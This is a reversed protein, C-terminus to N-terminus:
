NNILYSFTCVVLGMNKLFYKDQLYESSIDNFPRIIDPANFAEVYGPIDTANVGAESMTTLLRQQLRSVVRQAVEETDSLISDVTTQSLKYKEKLKLIYMANSHCADSGSRTGHQSGCSHEVDQSGPGGSADVISLTTIEGLQEENFTPNYAKLCYSHKKRLHRRFAHYNTLIRPCSDFGCQVRFGSQHSHVAGIHRLVSDYSLSAFHNCLQCVYM